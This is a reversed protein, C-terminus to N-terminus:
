GNLDNQALPNSDPQQIDEDSGKVDPTLSLNPSEPIRREEPQFTELSSKSRSKIIKRIVWVFGFIFGIYFAVSEVYEFYVVARYLIDVFGQSLLPADTYLLPNVEHLEYIDGLINTIILVFATSILLFFVSLREK